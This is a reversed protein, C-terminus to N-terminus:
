IREWLGWRRHRRHSGLAGPRRQACGTPASIVNTSSACRRRSWSTVHLATPSTGIPIHEKACGTSSGRGCRASSTDTGPVVRTATIVRNLALVTICFEEALGYTSAGSRSVVRTSLRHMACRASTSEILDAPDITARQCRHATTFVSTRRSAAAMAEDFDIGENGDAQPGGSRFRVTGKTSTCSVPSIGM